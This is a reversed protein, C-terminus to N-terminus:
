DLVIETNDQFQKLHYILSGLFFNRHWSSSSVSFELIQGSHSLDFWVDPHKIYPLLSPLPSTNSWNLKILIIQGCNWFHPQISLCLSSCSASGAPSSLFENQFGACLLGVVAHTFAMVGAPCLLARHTFLFSSKTQYHQTCEQSFDCQLTRPSGELSMLSRKFFLNHHKLPWWVSLVSNTVFNRSATAKSDDKLSIKEGSFTCLNIHM